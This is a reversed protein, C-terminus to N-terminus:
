RSPVEEKMSRCVRFGFFGERSDADDCWRSSCRIDDAAFGGYSGGRVVRPRKGYSSNIDFNGPYRDFWDWCWEWVNGSMDYIGLENPQRTGVPHTELGSNDTYWAVDDPDNSGSFKTGHSKNDGRAAYEWEAETPLRYGNAAPDIEVLWQFLDTDYINEPDKTSKDFIYVPTFGERISKKNCFVICDYWNVEEVPLDPDGKFYCPTEDKSGMVETWERQTVEYKGILFSEVKVKHVPRENPSGDGFGDGMLFTGGDVRVMGPTVPSDGDAAFVAASFCGGVMAVAVLARM